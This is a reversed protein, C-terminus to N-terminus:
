KTKGGSRTKRTKKPATEERSIDTIGDMVDIQAPEAEVEEESKVDECSEGNSDASEKDDGFTEPESPNEYPIGSCESIAGIKLWRSIDEDSFDGEIVEGPRAVFDGVDVHMNAYYRKEM